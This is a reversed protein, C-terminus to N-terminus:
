FLLFTVFFKKVYFVNKCRHSSDVAAAASALYYHLFDDYELRNTAAAALVDHFRHRRGYSTSANRQVISRLVSAQTAQLHACAHRLRRLALRGRVSVQL